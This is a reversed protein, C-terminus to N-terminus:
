LVTSPESIRCWRPHIFDQLYHSIIPYKGYWSTCSKMLIEEMLRIKSIYLGLIWHKGHCRFKFVFIFFRPDTVTFKKTPVSNVQFWWGDMWTDLGKNKSIKQFNVTVHVTKQRIVLYHSRFYEYLEYRLIRIGRLISSFWKPHRSGQSFGQCKGVKQASGGRFLTADDMRGFFLM